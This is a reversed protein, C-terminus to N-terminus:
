SLITSAFLKDIQSRKKVTIHIYSKDEFRSLVRSVNTEGMYLMDFEDTSTVVSDTHCGEFACSVAFTEKSTMLYFVGREQYTPGRLVIINWNKLLWHSFMQQLRVPLDMQAHPLLILEDEWCGNLEYIHLVDEEDILFRYFTNGFLAQTTRFARLGLTAVEFNRRGFTRLFLPDTAISKPLLGPSAGNV